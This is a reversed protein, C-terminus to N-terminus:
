VLSNLVNQSGNFAWTSVLYEGKEKKLKDEGTALTLLISCYAAKCKKLKTPLNCFAAGMRALVPCVESIVSVM